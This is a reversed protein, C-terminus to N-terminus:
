GELEPRPAADIILPEDLLRLELSESDFMLRSMAAGVEPASSHDIGHALNETLLLTLSEGPEWNRTAPDPRAMLLEEIKAREAPWGLEAILGCTPCDFVKSEPWWVQLADRCVFPQLRPCQAVWRGHNAYVPVMGAVPRILATM